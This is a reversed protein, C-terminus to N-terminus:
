KLNSALFDLVLQMNVADSFQAGGHSAGELLTL